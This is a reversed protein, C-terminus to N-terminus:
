KFIFLNRKISFISDVISRLLSQCRFCGTKCSTFFSACVLVCRCHVVMPGADPPNCAKVRRLFALFPTPHEPVGHDPWATFQFHRVERKENSGSQPLGSSNLCQNYTWVALAEHFMKKHTPTLGLTIHIFIEIFCDNRM